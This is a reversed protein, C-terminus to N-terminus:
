KKLLALLKQQEITTLHDTSEAVENLDAKSYKADLIENMRNMEQRTMQATAPSLDYGM